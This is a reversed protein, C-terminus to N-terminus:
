GIIRIEDFGEDEAPVELQKRITYIAIRPVKGERKSNREICIKADVDFYVCVTRYGKGKVMTMYKARRKRTVNTNDIIIDLGAKISRVLFEDERQRTKLTDLNVIMHDLFGECFTSKGCAPLGVLVLMEPMIEGKPVM